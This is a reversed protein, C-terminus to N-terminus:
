KEPIGQRKSAKFKANLARQYAAGAASDGGPSEKSIKKFTSPRMIAGKKQRSRWAWKDSGKRPKPTGRPM